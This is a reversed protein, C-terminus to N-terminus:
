QASDDKVIVDAVSATWNGVRLAGPDQNGLAAVCILRELSSKCAAAARNGAGSQQLAAANAVPADTALTVFRYLGPRPPTVIQQQPTGRNVASNASGNSPILLTVEYDSAVAYVYIYRAAQAVNTVTLKAQRAARLTRTGSAPLKPCQGLDYDVDNDICFSTDAAGSTRLDLLTRGRVAKLMAERMAQAFDPADVAGIRAILHGDLTGLVVSGDGSSYRTLLLEAPEALRVFPLQAAVEAIARRKAGDFKRIGITLRQGGVAHAVERAVLRKALPRAPPADLALTTVSTDVSQVVATALPIAGVALASTADAFLAFRSGQTIGSLKGAALVAGSASPAADFLTAEVNGGLLTANLAGDAQPEQGFRGGQAVRLRVDTIIDGFTANPRALLSQVLATTFVGAYTADVKNDALTERAKQFEGTAALHVRYGGGPGVALPAPPRVIGHVTLSGAARLRGPDKALGQAYNVSASHCSDFITVMNVGRATGSDIYGRLERDLIDEGSAPDPDDQPRTANPNGPKRADAALFTANYGSAQDQVQDDILTSGHGAFYFILTDGPASAEIRSKLAGLIARRTACGDTLTISVANQSMCMGPVADDLDLRYAARLAQKIRGADGVAGRLDSFTATRTTERSYLYHDIGVFIARVTPPRPPAADQQAVGPAACGLAAVGLAGWINRALTM